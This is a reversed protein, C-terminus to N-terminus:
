SFAGPLPRQDHYTSIVPYAAIIVWGHCVDGVCGEWSVYRVIVADGTMVARRIATAIM